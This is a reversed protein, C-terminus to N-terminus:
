GSATAQPALQRDLVSLFRQRSVPKQVFDAAGLSLALQEQPLITCVVIPTTGIEPHEHLEGLLEWGDIEPLMVDLVIIRPRSERALQMVQQPDTTGWFRYRSHSLYRELLRLTDANDDVVLVPVEDEAPLAIQITPPRDQGQEYIVELSGGSLEVLQQAIALESADEASFRSYRDVPGPRVLVLAQSCQAEATIRVEGGPVSRIAITLLILLAQRVPDHQVVLNPLRDSPTWEVNTQSTQVLPHVLELVDLILQHAALSETPLSAQLYALEQELSPTHAHAPDNQSQAPRSVDASRPWKSQLDHHRWLYSALADLADSEERRIQRTSLGVVDATEKQTFQEVYRSYLVQYTRWLHARPPVDAGPKLSEIAEALLDRLASSPDKNRDLDFWGLLPSKSLTPWDYLHHLARRLESVFSTSPLDGTM